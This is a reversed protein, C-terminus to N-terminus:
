IVDDDESGKKSFM